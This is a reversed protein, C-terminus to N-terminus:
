HTSSNTRAPDENPWRQFQVMVKFWEMLLKTLNGLKHLWIICWIVVRWSNRNYWVEIQSIHPHMFIQMTCGLDQNTQNIIIVIIIFVLWYPSTIRKIKTGGKRWSWLWTHTRSSMTVHHKWSVNLDGLQYIYNDLQLGINCLVAASCM